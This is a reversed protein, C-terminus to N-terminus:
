TLATRKRPVFVYFDARNKIAGAIHGAHTGSGIFLDGRAPGIIASGTDQAFMLRQWRGVQPIAGEVCVFIPSGFTHLRHDVALSRGPSLAVGAAAVPGLEPNEQDVRKFFIFSRNRDMLARARGSDALLWDRISDMTVAERSLHGHTVLWAGIPTFPHGSKGDYAIRWVSGDQMLLRASGQIHIFFGDVPNEIWALELGRGAIAGREIAARDPYESYGGSGNRAFMFSADMGPPRTTDDIDALDPPRSYLPYSFRDTREASAAVQPEFYGTVFGSGTSPQIRHPVFNQEFFSRANGTSPTERLLSEAIAALAPADSGLTKTTYPRIRMRQASHMFCQLAAAHDDGSWGPLESFAVPELRATQGSTESM